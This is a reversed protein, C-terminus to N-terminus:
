RSEEEALAAKFMRQLTTPELPTGLGPPFVLGNEEWENARVMHEHDQLAKHALLSEMLLTHSAKGVAEANANLSVASRAFGPDGLLVSCESLQDALQHSAVANGWLADLRVSTPGQWCATLAIWRRPSLRQQLQGVGGPPLHHHLTGVDARSWARRDLNDHM